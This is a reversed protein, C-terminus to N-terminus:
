TTRRRTGELLSDNSTDKPGRPQLQRATCKSFTDTLGDNVGCCRIRGRRVARVSRREAAFLIAEAVTLKAPLIDQQPVFGITPDKAGAETAPFAVEGTLRGVKSKGALIEILTTKGAGLYM